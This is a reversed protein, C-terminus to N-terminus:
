YNETAAVSDPYVELVLSWNPVEHLQATLRFTNQQRNSVSLVGAIKSSDYNISTLSFNAFSRAGGGYPIPRRFWAQAHKAVRSAENRLMDQSAGQAGVAFQDIGAVLALGVILAAVVLLFMQQTGM